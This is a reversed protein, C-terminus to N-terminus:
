GLIEKLAALLADTDEPLGTTIRIYNDYGPAQLRTIMIGYPVLAQVIEAAPRPMPAAVFNCVTPFPDSGLAKLGAVIREREAATKDLIMRMHDVDRYAALAGAQGIANVNFVSRATQFADAVADSGALMYGVRAGALGYAKSFTRFAAWPGTREALVGLHDDGGAHIGFEYYAEDVVLLADDPVGKALRAVEDSRLMQGTPNNPTAMFVLRTRDTIAALLADIDAAGDQRVPVTKLVAGNIQAAKYYGGFSPIPAVVEDGAALSVKGAIVLAEDSGNMVVVRSQPIGNREAIAATLERWRPDPYWNARACLDQMAAVAKPSPPYPTENLNMRRIKEPPVPSKADVQIPPMGWPPMSKLIDNPFTPADTM